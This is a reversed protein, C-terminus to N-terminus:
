GLFIIVFNLSAPDNVIQTPLACLDTDSSTIVSTIVAVTSANYPVMALLLLEQSSLQIHIIVYNPSNQPTNNAKIWVYNAVQMCHIHYALSMRGIMQQWFLSHYHNGM